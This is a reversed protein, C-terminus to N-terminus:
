DQKTSTSTTVNEKSYNKPLLVLSVLGLIIMMLTQSVWILLGLANGIGEASEPYDEKLYFAIVLGVLLPYSGIGGNTLTIGISGAIFGILIGKIPFNATEDLAYFCLGFMLLYSGWIIFTQLIYGGPNKSKFIAFLGNFVGKLFSQIKEKFSASKFYFFAVVAIGLAIVGYFVYKWEFGGEVAGKPGFKVMLEEWILEFDKGGVLTTIFFISALMVLDVAREAVITGFSKAFPVQDSRYLTAARTAEGARPITLNILYGITVAHYRHKLPTEHGLPELVYKWRQARAVVAIWGLILSILIWLYNAKKIADYFQLKSDESMSSYFLWILYVGIALPLVTKLLVSFSKKM